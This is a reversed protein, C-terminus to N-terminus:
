IHIVKKYFIKIKGGMSGNAQLIQSVHVLQRKDIFKKSFFLKLSRKIEERFLEKERVINIVRMMDDRNRGKGAM